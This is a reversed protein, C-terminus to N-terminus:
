QSGAELEGTLWSIHRMEEKIILDIKDRGAAKPMMDKLGLYYIISDKELGIAFRIIGALTETGTFFTIPDKKFDFVKGEAMAQAYSGAENDPDFATPEMERLSLQRHMDAFLKEHADEMQALKLMLDKGAPFRAAANRYFKGGNREIQEAMTFLEDANFAIAAM